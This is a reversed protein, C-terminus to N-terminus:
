QMVFGTFLVRDILKEHEEAEMLAQVRALLETRFATQGEVTMLVDADQTTVFSLIEAQLLPLHKKLKEALEPSAVSFSINMKVTRARSVGPINVVIPAPIPVYTTNIVLPEAHEAAEGHGGEGEAAEDKGGMLLFGAVGGIIVVAAIAIILILKKKGSKAADGLELDQADAM